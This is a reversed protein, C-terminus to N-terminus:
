DFGGSRDASARVLLPSPRGTLVEYAATREQWADSELRVPGATLNQQVIFAADEVGRDGWEVSASRWVQLGRHALYADRTADDVNAAEWAHALEHPVVFDLDSCITVTWPDTSRDFTGLYGHCAAPDAGFVVDLRPLVLGADEFLGLSEDLHARQAATAGIVRGAPDLEATSSERRITALHSTTASVVVADLDDSTPRADTDGVVPADSPLSSALVLALVTVVSKLM